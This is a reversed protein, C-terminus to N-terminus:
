LTAAIHLKSKIRIYFAVRSIRTLRSKQQASRFNLQFSHVNAQRMNMGMLVWGTGIFTEDTTTIVGAFTLVTNSVM